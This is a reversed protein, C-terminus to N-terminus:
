GKIELISKKKKIDWWSSIDGGVGGGQGCRHEDMNSYLSTHPGFEGM